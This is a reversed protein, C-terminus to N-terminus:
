SARRRIRQWGVAAAAAATVKLADGPLFPLIGLAFAARLSAHGGAVLWLAGGALVTLDGLAASLLAGRFGGATRRRLFSILLAAAPLVLLYGGTPGFLHALGSVTAPAFVPLGASGEFLYLATAGLAVRPTLLLGLLLLGFPQLSLPVPTFWLPVSIRATIALLLSGALVAGAARLWNPMAIWFASVPIPPYLEESMPTERFEQNWTPNMKM